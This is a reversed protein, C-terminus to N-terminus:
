LPPFALPAEGPDGQSPLGAADKENGEVVVVINNYILLLLLLDLAVAAVIDDEAVKALVVDLPHPVGPTQWGSRRAHNGDVGDCTIATAIPKPRKRDFLM